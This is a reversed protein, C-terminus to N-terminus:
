KRRLDRTLLGLMAEAQELAGEMWGQRVSYSEGCMWVHPMTEQLPRISRKSEEDPDYRGPLWYTVAHDWAHAKVYTPSPITPKLLRRLEEVIEKGVAEEGRAHLKEIWYTADQSDTYSLQVSGIEPNGGILYRIPTATVIRGGYEEYWMTGSEEKPFVGYFRLLPIMKLHRLGKWDSLGVIRELAVSPLAVIVAKRACLVVDDRSAGEKPSGVRFTVARDEVRVVEYHTLITGGRREFEAQLGRIIGSIGEKCIGYGAHTRMEGQFLRLAMDARMTDVEARYPFRILYSETRAAGHIKTLLQRITHRALEEKPLGAITDLMVPIAPEFANPEFESTYDHKYQIGAGIPVFTLKYRKLLVRVIRHDERIRGAGGEWQLKVGDVEKSFTAARGGLMAYKEFVAVRLRPFERLLEVATYLGAIGSGLIFIDYDSGIDKQTPQLREERKM